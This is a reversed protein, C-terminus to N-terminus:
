GEKEGFVEATFVLVEASGERWADPSLGAKHSCCYSLFDEKGWNQEPAVQPLFCGSGTRGRVYIGHRGLEIDMPDEIPELPGLVSIEIDIEALEAPLLPDGAFRFDETASSRGLENVLKYLPAESVFRGICGRLRGHNKITVFAGCPRQLEPDDESVEPSAAGRVAAEVSRRAIALLKRQNEPKM